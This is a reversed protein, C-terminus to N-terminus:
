FQIGNQRIAEALAKVRGHYLYGGRDFAIKVIGKKKLEEAFLKGLEQAITTKGKKPAVKLFDKDRSSFSALTKQAGDDIAQVFINNLSRHVAVRPREATGFIKKRIRRHRQIRGWETAHVM